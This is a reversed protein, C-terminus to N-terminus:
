YNAKFGSIVTQFGLPDTVTIDIRAWDGAAIGTITDTTVSVAVDYDNLNGIVNGFQNTAGSDSLGNYDCINDYESRNAPAAPCFTSTSPDLFPTLMIEEMYSNAISVSQVRMMPNASSQILFSHTSLLATIAVSFIVISIILEILTFGQQQHANLTITLTHDNKSDFDTFM